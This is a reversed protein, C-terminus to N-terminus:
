TLTSDQDPPRRAAVLSVISGPSSPLTEVDKFEAESLLKEVQQFAIPAGGWLTTRLRAISVGLPDNGPSAMAFLLWGGPRLAQRLRQCATPIVRSPLFATPLWALDFANQDSLDEAAQERLQIRDALGARQVAERAVSLAQMWPDIGVVNLSPWRQAMAVSLGGVGVGVDLFSAEPSELRRLIGDLRPLIEHALADAFGASLTGGARLIELDSDRWGFSGIPRSVFNADLLMNFRIEAVIQKADAPSTHKVIDALGAACLIEDVRERLEPDKPPGEGQRDLAAGLAALVTVSALRAKVYDRLDQKGPKM